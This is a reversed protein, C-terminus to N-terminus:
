CTPSPGGTLCLHGWAAGRSGPAQRHRSARDRDMWCSLEKSVGMDDAELRSGVVWNQFSWQPGAGRM